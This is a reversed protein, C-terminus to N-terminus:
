SSSVNSAFSSALALDFRGTIYHIAGLKKRTTRVRMSWQKLEKLDLGNGSTEAQRKEELRAFVKSELDLAQQYYQIAHDYQHLHKHCLSGLSHLIYLHHCVHGLADKDLIKKQLLSMTTSQKQILEGHLYRVSSVWVQVKSNHVQETLHQLDEHNQKAIRWKTKTLDHKLIARHYATEATEVLTTHEQQLQQTMNMSTDHGCEEISALASRQIQLAQQYLGQRYHDKGEKISQEMQAKLHQSHDINTSESIPRVGQTEGHTTTHITTTDQSPQLNRNSYSENQELPETTEPKVTALATTTTFTHEDKEKSNVEPVVMDNRSDQVHNPISADDTAVGSDGGGTNGSSNGVDDSSPTVDQSTTQYHEYELYSYDLDGEEWGVSQSDLEITGISGNLDITTGM